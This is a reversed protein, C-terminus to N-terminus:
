LGNIFQGGHASSGELKAAFAEHDEAEGRGRARLAKAGAKKIRNIQPASPKQVGTAYVAAPFGYKTPIDMNACWKTWWNTTHQNRALAVIIDDAFVRSIRQLTLDDGMMSQLIDNINAGTVPNGANDEITLEEDLYSSLESGGQEALCLLVYSWAALVNQPTADAQALGHSAAFRQYITDRMERPNGVSPISQRLSAALAAPTPAAAM